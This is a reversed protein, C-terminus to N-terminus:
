RYATAGGVQATSQQAQQTQRMLDRTKLRIGEAEKVLPKTDVNLSLVKNLAEIISVAAGPDPFQALSEALLVVGSQDNVSCYKLLSAYFGTIVGEEFPLTGSDKLIDLSKKGNGVGAVTSKGEAQSEERSRSPAGTVGVLLNAKLSKAWAAIEKAVEYSIRGSLPVESLILITNDKGFMHVPYGATSNHVVMVPPMLDSDIFGREELTLQEVIYSCAITGVLGAEPVGVIVNPKTVKPGVDIIQVRKPGRSM